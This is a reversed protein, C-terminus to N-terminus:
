RYLGAIAAAERRVLDRLEKPELAEADRGCALIIECASEPTHFEMDARVWGPGDPETRLVKAYRERKLRSLRQESIRIRAPYQPLRAKFDATSQEWYGSLSFGPPRRFGEDLLAADTIRSIRFTRLEGRDEAVLYWVNRKAVLGLPHVIRGQAETEGGHDELKQYIMRLKCGAWVAEQVVPLWPFSEGSVHWGAGDIHLRERITEADKRFPAPSSTMLKRLANGLADVGLGLDGLLQPSHSTMLLALLEEKRMGTLNTRYNEALVWGGQPGREAYVPIGAASLAEMDRVVTRESVELKEALMRSSQKGGSQLHLLISLLRDARM